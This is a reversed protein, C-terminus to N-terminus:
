PQPILMFLDPMMVVGDLSSHIGLLKFTAFKASQFCYHRSHLAKLWTQFAFSSFPPQEMLCVSSYSIVKFNLLEIQRVYKSGSFPM